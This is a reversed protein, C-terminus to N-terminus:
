SKLSSREEFDGINRLADILADQVRDEATASSDTIQRAVTLMWPAHNRVLIEAASEDGAKLAAVLSPESTGAPEATITM